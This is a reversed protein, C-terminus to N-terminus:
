DRPSPSTYLLCSLYRPLRLPVSAPATLRPTCSHLWAGAMVERWVQDEVDSDEEDSDEEDCQYGLWGQALAAQEAAQQKVAEVQAVGERRRGIPTCAEAVDDSADSADDRYRFQVEASSPDAASASTMAGAARSQPLGAVRLPLLVASSHM